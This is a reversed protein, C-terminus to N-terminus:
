NKAPLDDDRRKVIKIHKNWLVFSLCFIVLCIYSEAYFGVILPIALTFYALAALSLTKITKTGGIEERASGTAGASAYASSGM